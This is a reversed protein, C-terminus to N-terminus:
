RRNKLSESFYREALMASERWKLLALEYMEVDAYYPEEKEFAQWVEELEKNAKMKLYNIHDLEKQLEDNM